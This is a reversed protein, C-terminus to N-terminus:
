DRDTEGYRTGAQRYVARTSWPSGRGARCLMGADLELYVGGIAYPPNPRICIFQRLPSRDRSRPLAFAILHHRLTIVLNRNHLTLRTGLVESHYMSTLRGLKKANFYMSYKRNNATAYDFNELFTLCRGTQEIVPPPEPIEPAPEKM